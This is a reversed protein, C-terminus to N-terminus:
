DSTTEKRFTRTIEIQYKVFQEKEEAHQITGALRSLFMGFAEIMTVDVLNTDKDTYYFGYKNRGITFTRKDKKM